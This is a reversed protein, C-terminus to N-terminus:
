YLPHGQNVSMDNTFSYSLVWLGLQSILKNPPRPLSSELTAKLRHRMRRSISEGSLIRVVDRNEGSTSRQFTLGGHHAVDSLLNQRESSTRRVDVRCGRSLVTKERSHLIVSRISSGLECISRISKDRRHSFVNGGNSVSCMGLVVNEDVTSEPPIQPSM